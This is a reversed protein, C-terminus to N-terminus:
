FFCENVVDEVDSIKFRYIYSLIVFSVIKKHRGATTRKALCSSGHNQILQSYMEAEEFLNSLGSQAYLGFANQILLMLFMSNFFVQSEGAHITITRFILSVRLM